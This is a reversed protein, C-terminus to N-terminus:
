PEYTSHPLSGSVRTSVSAEYRERSSLTLGALESARSDTALFARLDPSRSGGSVGGRWQANVNSDRQTGPQTDPIRADDPVADM